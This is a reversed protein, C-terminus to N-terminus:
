QIEDIKKMFATKQKSQNYPAKLPDTMSEEAVKAVNHLVLLSLLPLCNPSQAYIVCDICSKSTAMGSIQACTRDIQNKSDFNYVCRRHCYEGTKCTLASFGIVSAHTCYSTASLNTTACCNHPNSDSSIIKLSFLSLLCIKKIM